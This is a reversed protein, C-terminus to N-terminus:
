RFVPWRSGREPRQSQRFAYGEDVHAIDQALLLFLL